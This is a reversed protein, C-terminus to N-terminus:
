LHTRHFGHLQRWLGHPGVLLVQPPQGPMQAVVRLIGLVDGLGGQELRDLVQVTEPGLRAEPGPQM